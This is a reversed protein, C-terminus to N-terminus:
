SVYSKPFSCTKSVKDQGILKYTDFFEAVTPKKSQEKAKALRAKLREAVRGAKQRDRGKYRSEKGKGKGEELYDTEALKLVVTRDNGYKGTGGDCFGEGIM